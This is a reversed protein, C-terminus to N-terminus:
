GRVKLILKITYGFLSAPKNFIHPAGDTTDFSDILTLNGGFFFKGRVFSWREFGPSRLIKVITIKGKKKFWIKRDLFANSVSFECSELIKKQGYVVISNTM